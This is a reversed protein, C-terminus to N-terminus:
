KGQGLLARSIVIKQIESTGEYIETVKADRYLREIPFEDTYGYGGHIQLSENTAERATKSAFLKAMAGEKNVPLGEDKLWAARYTLMRAAHIRTTMDAIKWQIGQFRNIPKGFAEREGSFKKALDLAAQAIGTAQAAIGVRGSELTKMAIAFGKNLEGILASKPVRCNELVLDYTESTRMGMKHTKRGLSLGPTGAEILFASIGKAGPENPDTRAFLLFLGASKANTIWQKTGNLVYFDGDEEAKTRLATADSGCCPETLAFAGIMEGSCLKALYKAKQEDTGFEYVSRTHASVHVSYACALGPDAKALEEVVTVYDRLNAGAGGFEEPIPLGLVGLEGLKRFVDVPFHDDRDWRATHPAIERAAFQQIMEQLARQDDSFELDM